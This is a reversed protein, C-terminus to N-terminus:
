KNPRPRRQLPQALAEALQEFNVRGLGKLLMALTLTPKDDGIDVDVLANAVAGALVRYTLRQAFLAVNAGLRVGKWGGEKRALHRVFRAYTRPYLKTDVVFRDTIKNPM